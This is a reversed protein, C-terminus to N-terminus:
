TVGHWIIFGVADLAGYCFCLLFFSPDYNVQMSSELEKFLGCLDVKILGYLTLPSSETLPEFFREFPLCNVHKPVILWIVASIKINSLASKPYLSVTSISYPYLVPIYLSSGKPVQSNKAIQMSILMVCSASGENQLESKCKCNTQM